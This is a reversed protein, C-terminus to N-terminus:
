GASGQVPFPHVTGGAPAPAPAKPAAISGHLATLWRRGAPARLGSEVGINLYIDAVFEESTGAGAQSLAAPGLMPALLSYVDAPSTGESYAQDLGQMIQRVNEGHRPDAAATSAPGQAAPPQAAPPAQPGQHAQHPVGAPQGVAAQPHPRPLAPPAPAPPGDPPRVIGLVDPLVAKLSSLVEAGAKMTQVTESANKLAEPADDSLGGDQKAGFVEGLVEKTARQTEAYDLLQDTLTKPSSRQEASDTAVKARRLDEDAQSRQRRLDDELHTAARRSADLERQLEDHKRRWRDNEDDLDDAKSQARTVRDREAVLERELTSARSQEIKLSAEHTATIMRREQESAAAASETRRRQDREWSERTATHQRRMEELTDAPVTPNGTTPDYWPTTQPATTAAEAVREIREGLRGIQDELRYFSVDHRAALTPDIGSPIPPMEPTPAPPYASGYRPQQEQPFGHPPPYGSQTGPPYLYDEVQEKTLEVRRPEGHRVATGRARRKFAQVEYVGHRKAIQAIAEEDLAKHFPGWRQMSPHLRTLEYQIGGAEGLRNYWEPLETSKPGVRAAGPKNRRRRPAPASTIVPARAAGYNDDDEPGDLGDFLEDDHGSM